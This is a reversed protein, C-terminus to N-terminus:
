YLPASLGEILIQTCFPLLNATPDFLTEKSTKMRWLTSIEAGLRNYPHGIGRTEDNWRATLAQSIQSTAPKKLFGDVKSDGPLEKDDKPLHDIFTDIDRNMLKSLKDLQSTGCSVILHRRM